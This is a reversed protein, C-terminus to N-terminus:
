ECSHRHGRWWDGRQREHMRRAAYGDLFDRLARLTNNTRDNFFWGITNLKRRSLVGVVARRV